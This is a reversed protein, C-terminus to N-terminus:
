ERGSVSDPLHRRRTPFVEAYPPSVQKMRTRRALGVPAARAAIASVSVAHAPALVPEGVVMACDGVALAEVPEEAGAVGPSGIMMVAASRGSIVGSEVGPGWVGARITLRAVPTPSVSTARPTPLLTTPRSSVLSTGACASTTVLACLTEASRTIASSGSRTMTSARVVGGSARSWISAAPARITSTGSAHVSASMAGRVVAIAFATPTSGAGRSAVSGASEASGM